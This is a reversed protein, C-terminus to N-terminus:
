GTGADSDDSLTARYAQVTSDLDELGVDGTNADRRFTLPRVRPKSIRLPAREIPASALLFGGRRESSPAAIESSPSNTPAVEAAVIPAEAVRASALLVRRSTAPRSSLALPERRFTARLRTKMRSNERKAVRVEIKPAYSALVIQPQLPALERPAPIAERLAAADLGTRERRALRLTQGAVSVSSSARMPAEPLIQMPLPALSTAVKLPLVRPEPATESSITRANAEVSPVAITVAGRPATSLPVPLFSDRALLLVFACLAAGSWLTASSTSVKADWFRPFSSLSAGERKSARNPRSTRALIPAQLDPAAQSLAIAARLQEALEQPAAPVKQEGLLARTQHWALWSRACRECGLLHQRAKQVQADSAEGDFLATLLPAHRACEPPLDGWVSPPAFSFPANGKAENRNWQNGGHGNMLTKLLRERPSTAGKGRLATNLLSASV